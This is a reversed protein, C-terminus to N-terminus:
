ITTYLATAETDKPFHEPDELHQWIRFEPSSINIVNLNAINLSINITLDHTEHCPPLHFHQSTASCTPPLQLIHIPTQTKIFRPAEEPLNDNNRNISSNTSFDTDM